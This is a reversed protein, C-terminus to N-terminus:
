GILDESLCCCMSLVSGKKFGYSVRVMFGVLLNRNKDIVTVYNVAYLLFFLVEWEVGICFISLELISEVIVSVFILVIVVGFLKMNGCWVM